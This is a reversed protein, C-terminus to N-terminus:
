RQYLMNETNGATEKRKREVLKSTRNRGRPEEFHTLSLRFSEICVLILQQITTHSHGERRKRANSGNLVSLSRGGNWVQERTNASHLVIYNISQTQKNCFVNVIYM